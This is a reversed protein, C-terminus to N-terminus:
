IFKFFFIFNPNLGFIKGYVPMVNVHKIKNTAIAMNQAIVDNNDVFLVSPGWNREEILTEIYEPQDTPIELDPIIHLDNQAQKISVCSTLGMIRSYFDLMFFHTKYERPGHPKVNGWIATKKCSHRSRGTGKQPWPKRERLDIEHRRM